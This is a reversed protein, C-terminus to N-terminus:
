FDLRVGHEIKLSDVGPMSLRTVVAGQDNLFRRERHFDISLRDTDDINEYDIEFSYILGTVPNFVERRFGLGLGCGLSSDYSSVECIVRPTLAMEAQSARPDADSTAPGFGSFAVEAFLRGGNYDPIDISGTDTQSLQTATVDADGTLAYALDLGVRPTILMKDLQHQGSLAVGAFAAAYDYSGDAQIAGGIAAFSLDFRHHGFGGAAYYDLFLGDGLQRAGYIGANVGVGNISGDALGTVNTRSLYGGWFKGRLDTESLFRERQSSFQVLAQTGINETRTLSFSGALISRSGSSCNYVDYGFTGDSQGNGGQTNISGDIDFGALSGCGLGAEGAQLRALAGKAIGNFYRQQTQVTEEVDNKLIETLPERIQDILDDSVTVQALALGFGDFASDASSVSVSPQCSHAGEVVDDDLAAITLTQASAYTASTFTLVAPSVSCQSDGTFNLVVDQGPQGMLVFSMAATDRGNESATLDDNTVAITALDDDTISTSQTLDATTTSLMVATDTSTVSTLTFIVTESGEILGDELVTLDVLASTDGAAITVSGSPATYDVGSTATGGLSYSITSDQAAAKSLSVTFSVSDTAAGNAEAGTDSASATVEIIECNTMPINNALVDPDGAEITFNDYFVPNAALSADALFGTSGVETSGLVAPNAPLLSTVDLTGSSLRTTSASGSAPYSYAISYSGPSLAFWQFEGSSGDRVINIGNSIGVSSNSGSPGTVTIGGGSLIRGDDECYFYGQPDYDASDVIGDGDRDASSSELHDPIGDGDADAPPNPDPTGTLHAEVTVPDSVLNGNGDANVASDQPLTLTMTGDHDPTVTLSYSTGSGTLSAASGGDVVLASAVLGTVSESFDLDLTFAGSQAPTPASLTVLPQSTDKRTTDSAAPGSQGAADTLVVSLTLTGDALGSVDLGTIQDSASALTGNGTVATGGGDSTISYSYQIGTEAGAFTFSLATQASVNVPDQDLSVSYGSPANQDLSLTTSAQDVPNGAVDMADATLTLPGDALPSLDLNVSWANSTVTASGTVTASASDTVLLTVSQADEVGASSGSLTVASAEAASVIDDGALPSDFGLAPADTDLSLSATAQPTPTGAADTVDATLSLSGDSLPSLDLDTSWSGGTVTASGSVTASSSDTVVLSVSQGDEILTSSGSLTVTAAEASNVVDDGALPSDFALSPVKLTASATGSNGLSSTLDGTTNVLSGSASSLVDVSLDCSAGAAVTGGTYSITSAGATATLTGGACTTSANTPSALALGAPLNDTFDLGSAEILASSNDITFTLSTGSGLTVSSNAFSKSFGPLPAASVNLTASATGSNGLSSTLNGTTNLLGGVTTARVEVSLNCSAGAAVTGGTYSITSAGAPATITGGTCTTSANASPAIVLGTPLNDTFNLGSALLTAASNDISFTLTTTDGQVIPSAAFGKSYLPAPDITFSASAANAAFVGNETLPSSSGPYSGASATGPISLTLAISCSDGPALSGSTLIVESTGSVVSGSGCLNSGTGASVVLGTLAVDLDDTFRLGSLSASGDNNTIQYTVTTSGGAGLVPDAFSKVFSPLAFASVTLDAAAAPGTVALGSAEATVSTTTGAYVNASSGGPVVQTVSFSCSAGAVLTGNAFSLMGTGSLSSGSGCINSQSGSTSALGSLQADLDDSFAISTLARSSDNSLTYNVVVSDGPATPTSAYSKSLSVLTSDVAFNALMNDLTVTGGNLTARVATTATMYSGDAAGSPVTLTVAIDCNAGPALSMGTFVGTTTGSASGGGCFGATPLAAVALGSLAQSYNDTFNIASYTYTSDPNSLRYTLTIEESPLPDTIDFSASLNLAQAVLIEISDTAAAATTTKGGASGTLPSTTNTYTNAVVGADLTVTTEITCSGGPDLSGGSYTLMSNGASLSTSGTCTSSDITLTTGSAFAALDDTFSLGTATNPSEAASSMTFTLTTSQGAGLIDAAFTKSFNLNAGGEVDLTASAAATTVSNGNVTASVEGTSFPYSSPPVSADVDLILDFSCTEGVALDAGSVQMGFTDFAPFSLNFTSGGGCSGDAPLTAISISNAGTIDTIVEQFAIDTLAQASNPNSLTYRLTASGGPAVPNNVVQKSLSAGQGGDGLVSLTTSATGGTYPAGDLTATVASTVNLYSGSTAGAPILVSVDFTCSDGSALTAGSLTLNSSGTLSSEAGCFEDPPLATATLGSLMADLDDSFSINTASGSRSTNQLVFSLTVTEGAGAQAVDFSKFLGIGDTPLSNVTFATTKTETSLPSGFANRIILNSSLQYDDSAGGTLVSSVTCSYTGATQLQDGTFSLTGADRDAAFTGSCGSSTNNLPTAFEVGTPLDLTLYSSRWESSTGGTPVVIDFSLSLTASSGPDVATPSISTIFNTTSATVTLDDSAPGSNGLDSTLDGTTFTHTGATSSNVPLSVTCSEGNGLRGGSLSITDGGATASLSSSNCSNSQSGSAITVGAPLTGNFALDQAATGSTNDITFTLVSQGGSSISNPSFQLSFDPGVPAARAVGSSLIMAPVLGLCLVFCLCSFRRLLSTM